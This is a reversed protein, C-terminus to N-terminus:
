DNCATKLSQLSITESGNHEIMQLAIRSYHDAQFSPHYDEGGTEEPSSYFSGATCGLVPALRASPNHGRCNSGGASPSFKM